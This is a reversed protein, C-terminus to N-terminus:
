DGYFCAQSPATIPPAHERSRAESRNRENKSRYRRCPAFPSKARECLFSSDEVCTNPKCVGCGSQAFEHLKIRLGRISIDLLKAAQTRNGRCCTLTDLIHQREVEALTLGFRAHDM